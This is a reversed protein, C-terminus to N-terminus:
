HSSNETPRLVLKLSYINAVIGCIKNRYYSGIPFDNGFYHTEKKSVFSSLPLVNEKKERAKRQFTLEPTISVGM